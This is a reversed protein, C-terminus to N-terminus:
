LTFNEFLTISDITDSNVKLYSWYKMGDLTSPLFVWTVSVSLEQINPKSAM